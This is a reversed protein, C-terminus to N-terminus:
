MRPGAIDRWVSRAATGPAHEMSNGRIPSESSRTAITGMQQPAAVVTDDVGNGAHPFQVTALLGKHLRIQNV